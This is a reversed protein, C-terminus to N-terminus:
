FIFGLGISFINQDDKTTASDKYDTMAYDMKLVVQETPFFNVGFTTTASEAGTDVVTSIGNSDVVSDTPNIYDYQVFIPLKYDASILHIADYELNVYYGNANETSRDPGPIGDITAGAIKDADDIKTATYLAKLKFGSNEYTGHVDYMLATAGSVSGQTATGYYTSAGLMLGPMGIYDLRGVFAANNFTSKGTGSRGSRIQEKRGRDINNLDLAQIIGANYTFGSEGISGYAIAGNSNWTSPILYKEVNPRQVTNFLTPEHRLNILGMPVLLNGVQVNFADSLMFDLYMFEIVAYGYEEDDPKAGGHEFELEVNLVINENFRYGIYPVFRYIDGINDADEKSAYYMEGYGGISLPSKSTYVKSAAAGMGNHSFDPNVVNFNFGTQLNATEELLSDTKEAIENNQQQMVAAKEEYVKDQAELKDLREMLAKLQQKLVDTEADAFLSTSLASAVALSILTKKM